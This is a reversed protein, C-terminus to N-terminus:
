LFVQTDTTKTICNQADHHLTQQYERREDRSERHLSVCLRVVCLLCGCAFLWGRWSRRNNWLLAVACGELGFMLLVNLGIYPDDRGGLLIPIIDGSEVNAHGQKPYTDEADDVGFPSQIFEMMMSSLKFTQCPGSTVIGSGRLVCCSGSLFHEFKGATGGLTLQPCINTKVGSFNRKIAALWNSIDIESVRSLSGGILSVAPRTDFSRRMRKGSGQRSWHLDRLRFIGDAGARPKTKGSSPLRWEESLGFQVGEGFWVLGQVNVPSDVVSISEPIPPIRVETENSSSIGTQPNDLFLVSRHSPHEAWIKFAIVCCLGLM